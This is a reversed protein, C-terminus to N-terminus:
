QRSGNGLVGEAQLLNTRALQSVIETSQKVAAYNACVVAKRTSDILSNLEVGHPLIPDWKSCYPSVKDNLLSVRPIDFTTALIRGHLSSGIWIQSNIILNSIKIPDRSTEIMVRRNHLKANTLACIEALSAFCDHGTAIGAAVLCIDMDFNSILEILANSVSRTSWLNVLHENIQFIIMGTEFDRKKVFLNPVYRAIHVVDPALVSDIQSSKLFSLSKEDRVGVWDAISLSKYTELAVTTGSFEKLRSVGISNAILKIRNKRDKMDSDWLYAPSDANRGSVLKPFFSPALHKSPEVVKGVSQPLSMRLADIVSVAGVEGGVTWIFDWDDNILDSLRNVIQGDPLTTEFTSVPVFKHQPFANQLVYLFLTDGFNDREFAGIALGRM